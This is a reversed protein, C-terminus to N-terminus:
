IDNIISGIIPYGRSRLIELVSHMFPHKNPHVAYVCNYDIANTKAKQSKFNHSNIILPNTYYLNYDKAQCIAIVPQKVQKVLHNFPIFLNNNNIMSMDSFEAYLGKYPVIGGQLLSNALQQPQTHSQSQQPGIFTHELICGSIASLAGTAVSNCLTPWAYDSFLNSSVLATNTLQNIAGSGAIALRSYKTNDKLWSALKLIIDTYVAQVSSAINVDLHAFGKSATFDALVKYGDNTPTIINSTIWDKYYPHGAEALQQFYFSKNTIGLFQLATEYFLGISLPFSKIWYIQKGEYYGLVCVHKDIALIACCDWGRTSIPSHALADLYKVPIVDAKLRAKAEQIDNVCAYASINYLEKAWAIAYAPFSTESRQKTFYSEKCAAIINTNDTLALSSENHNWSLAALM